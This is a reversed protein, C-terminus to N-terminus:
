QPNAELWAALAADLAEQAVEPLELVGCGSADDPTYWYDNSSAAGAAQSIAPLDWLASVVAKATM